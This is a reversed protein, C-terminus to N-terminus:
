VDLMMPGSVNSRPRSWSACQGCTGSSECGARFRECGAPRRILRDLKWVVVGGARRDEIARPLQEYAPPTVGRRYPPHTWTRTSALWMGSGCDPLPGARRRKTNPRRRTGTDEKSLRTCVAVTTNMSVMTARNSRGVAGQSMRVHLITLPDDPIHEQESFDSQGYLVPVASRLGFLLQRLHRSQDERRKPYGVLQV